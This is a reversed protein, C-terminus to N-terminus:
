RVRATAIAYGDTLNRAANAGTFYQRRLDEASINRVDGFGRQTLFEEVQGPELGFSLGEGTFRQMIRMRKIEGHSTDNLYTNTAYDFILASGPASHQAIFALTNDVGQPTLYYIVGQWIFLTKQTEDYGSERLRQELSQTNFDVPVFVLNKPLSPVVSALKERKVQQTALQDVDFVMASQMGEIRLARTDYGAGLIVVQRIGEELCAKTFDDICQERVAIFGFVGKGRREISQPNSFLKAVQWLLPGIFARAYPDYCLREGEPKQSELARMLAIGQATTSSRDRSM